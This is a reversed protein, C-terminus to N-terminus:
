IHILSLMHNELDLADVPHVAVDIDGPQLVRSTQDPVDVLLHPQRDGRGCGDGLDTVPEAGPHVAKGAVVAHRPDVEGTALTLVVHHLLVQSPERTSLTHHEDAPCLLLGRHEARLFAAVALAPGVRQRKYVDSAASSYLPTSRPPRRIM